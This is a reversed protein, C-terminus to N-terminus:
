AGESIENFNYKKNIAGWSLIKLASENDEHLLGHTIDDSELIMPIENLYMNLWDFYDAGEEKAWHNVNHQEINLKINLPYILFTLNYFDHEFGLNYKKVIKSIAQNFTKTQFDNLGEIKEPLEITKNM